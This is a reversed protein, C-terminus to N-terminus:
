VIDVTSSALKQSNDLLRNIATISSDISKQIKHKFFLLNIIKQKTIDFAKIGELELSKPEAEIVATVSGYSPEKNKSNLLLNILEGSYVLNLYPEGPACRFNWYLDYGFGGIEVFNTHKSTSFTRTSGEENHIDSKVASSLNDGGIKGSLSGSSKTSERESIDVDYKAETGINKSYKIQSQADYSLNHLILRLRCEKLHVKIQEKSNLIQCFIKAQGIRIDSMITRELKAPKKNGVSLKINVFQSKLLQMDIADNSEYVDM